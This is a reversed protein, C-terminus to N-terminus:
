QMSYQRLKRQEQKFCQWGPLGSLNTHSHVALQNNVRQQLVYAEVIIDVASFIKFILLASGQDRHETLCQCNTVYCACLPAQIITHRHWPHCVVNQEHPEGTSHMCTALM